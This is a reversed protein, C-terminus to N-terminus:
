RLWQCDGCGKVFAATNCSCDASCWLVRITHYTDVAKGFTVYCCSCQECQQQLYALPERSLFILSQVGKLLLLRVDLPITRGRRVSRPCVPLTVASSTSGAQSQLLLLLLLAGAISALALASLVTFSQLRAEIADPLLLLL